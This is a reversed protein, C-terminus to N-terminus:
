IRCILSSMDYKDKVSQSIESVMINELDMWATTFLLLEKKVAAYCETTYHTSLFKSIRLKLVGVISLNSVM